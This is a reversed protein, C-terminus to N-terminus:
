FLSQFQCKQLHRFLRHLLRFASEMLVLISVNQLTTACYYLWTMAAFLPQLFSGSKRDVAKASTKKWLTESSRASLRWPLHWIAQRGCSDPYWRGKCLIKTATLGGSFLDQSVRHRNMVKTYLGPSRNKDLSFHRIEEGHRREQILCGRM